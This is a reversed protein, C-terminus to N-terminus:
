KPKKIEIKTDAAPKNPIEGIIGTDGSIVTYYLDKPLARLDPTAIRVTSGSAVNEASVLYDYRGNVEIVKLEDLNWSSKYIAMENIYQSIEKSINKMSKTYGYIKRFFKARHGRIDARFNPNTFWSAILIIIVGEIIKNLTKKM